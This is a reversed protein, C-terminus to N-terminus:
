PWPLALLDQVVTTVHHITGLRRWAELSGFGGVGDAVAGMSKCGACHFVGYYHPQLHGYVLQTALSQFQTSPPTRRTSEGKILLWRDAMAYRVSASVQMTRPDFGEVGKPHQIVGDSYTPLRAMAARNAHQGDRWALWESREAFDHAHREVGGMSPPFACASLTFTKWRAHDPVDSLFATTLAEVGASIMDDVAGLDVVLDIDEPALGHKALFRRIGAGLGGAEFEDRHLRLALGRARHGLAAEVDVSRSIGTVPTFSIGANVARRFVETAAAAGDPAMERADIFCREFPRVADALNQFANDLHADLPKDTREVIELLPTVRSQTSASLLRLARKEGRKVKLVPVYHHAGFTM